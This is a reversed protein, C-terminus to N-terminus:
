IFEPRKKKKHIGRTNRRKRGRNKKTLCGQKGTKRALPPAQNKGKEDHKERSFKFKHSQTEKTRVGADKVEPMGHLTKEGEM